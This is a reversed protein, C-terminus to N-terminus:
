GDDFTLRLKTFRPPWTEDTRRHGSSKLKVASTKPAYLGGTMGFHICLWPRRDLELWFHNGHRGVGTVRRGLLARRFRRAPVAEFVIPDDACWVDVLRRGAALREALLRATEVEPLEPM